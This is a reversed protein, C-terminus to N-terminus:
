NLFFFAIHTFSTCRLLIRYLCFSMFLLDQAFALRKIPNYKDLELRGDSDCHQIEKIYAFGYYIRIRKFCRSLDLVRTHM